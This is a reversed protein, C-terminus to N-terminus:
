QVPDKFSGTKLVYVNGEQSHLQYEWYYGTHEYKSPVTVLNYSRTEVNISTETHYVEEMNDRANRPVVKFYVKSKDLDIMKQKPKKTEKRGKNRNKSM